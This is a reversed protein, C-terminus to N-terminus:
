NIQMSKHFKKFHTRKAFKAKQVASAPLCPSEPLISCLLLVVCPAGAGCEPAKARATWEFAASSQRVGFGQPLEVPKRSSDGVWFTLANKM